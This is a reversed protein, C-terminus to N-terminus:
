YISLSIMNKIDECVVTIVFNHTIHKLREDYLSYDKYTKKQTRTGTKETSDTGNDTTGSETILTDDNYGSVENLSNNNTNRNINDTTDTTTIVEKSVDLKYDTTLYDFQKKWSESHTTVILQALELVSFGDIVETVLKQGYLMRYIKEAYEVGYLTLFDFQEIENITKFMPQKNYIWQNYNM